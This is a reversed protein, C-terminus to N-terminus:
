ELSWGKTKFLKKVEPYKSVARTHECNNSADQECYLKGDKVYVDIIRRQLNDLLTIHDEKSNIHKFRFDTHELLFKRIIWVGVGSYTQSYKNAELEARLAPDNLLEDLWPEWERPLNVGIYPRPEKSKSM